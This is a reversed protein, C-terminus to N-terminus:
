PVPNKTMDIFDPRALLVKLAFDNGDIVPRLTSAIHEHYHGARHLLIALRVFLGARDGNETFRRKLEDLTEEEQVINNNIVAISRRPMSSRLSQALTNVRDFTSKLVEKRREIQRRIARRSLLATKDRTQQGVDYKILPEVSQVIDSENVRNNDLLIILLVYLGMAEGTTVFQREMRIMYDHSTGTLKEAQPHHKRWNQERGEDTYNHGIGTWVRLFIILGLVFLLFWEFLILVDKDITLYPRLYVLYLGIVIGILFKVSPMGELWGIIGWWLGGSRKGRYAALRSVAVGIIGSFIILAFRGPWVRFENFSVLAQWFGFGAILMGLATGANYFRKGAPTSEIVNFIRNITYGTIALISFLAARHFAFVAIDNEQLFSVGWLIGFLVVAQVVGTIIRKRIVKSINKDAM